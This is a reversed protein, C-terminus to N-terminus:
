PREGLGRRFAAELKEAVRSWPMSRATAIANARLKSRLLEDGLFRLIHWVLLSLNGVGTVLSNEDNRCFEALGGSAYTAPVCGCAMAELFPRGFGEIIATKILLDCQQYIRPMQDEPPNEFVKDVLSGPTAFRRGVAWVEVKQHQRVRNAVEIAEIVNRMPDPFDGEILLRIGERPKPDPSFRGLDVGNGIVWVNSNACKERVFEALWESVTVLNLAPDAYTRLLASRKVGSVLLHDKDQLLLFSSRAHLARSTPYVERVHVLVDFHREPASEEPIPRIPAALAFGEAAEEAPAFITVQHGRGILENAQYFAAHIGGCAWSTPLIYAINM